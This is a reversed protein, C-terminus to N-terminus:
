VSGTLESAVHTRTNVACSGVASGGPRDPVCAGSSGVGIHLCSDGRQPLAAAVSACNLLKLTGAANDGDQAAGLLTGPVLAQAHQLAAAGGTGQLM